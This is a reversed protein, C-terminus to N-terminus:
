WVLLSFAECGLREYDEYYLEEGLAKVTNEILPILGM